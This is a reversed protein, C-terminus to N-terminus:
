GHLAPRYNPLALFAVEGKCLRDDRCGHRHVRRGLGMPQFLRTRRRRTGFCDNRQGFADSCRHKRGDAPRGGLCRRRRRDACFASPWYEPQDPKGSLTQPLPPLADSQAFGAQALNGGGCLAPIRPGANIACGHRHCLLATSRSRSVRGLWFVDRTFRPRPCPNRGAGVRCCFSSSIRGDGAALRLFAPRLFPAAPKPEYGSWVPDGCGAWVSPVFGCLQPKALM